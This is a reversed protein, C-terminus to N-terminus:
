VVHLLQFGLPYQTDKHLSTKRGDKEERGEFDRSLNCPAALVGLAFNVARGYPVFAELAGRMIQHIGTLLAERNNKGTILTATCILVGTGMRICGSVTRIGSLYGLVDFVLNHIKLATVIKDRTEKSISVKYNFSHANVSFPGYTNMGFNNLCFSLM